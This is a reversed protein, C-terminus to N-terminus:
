DFQVELSGDKATVQDHLIGDHRAPSQIVDKAGDEWDYTAFLMLDDVLRRHTGRLSGCSSAIILLFMLICLKKM